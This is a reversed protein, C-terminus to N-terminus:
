RYKERLKESLDEPGMDTIFEKISLATNRTQPSLTTKEKPKIKQITIKVKSYPELELAEIVKEPLLFYGEPLVEAIYEITKM